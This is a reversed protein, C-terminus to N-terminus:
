RILLHQNRFPKAPEVKPHEMLDFEAILEQRRQNAQADLLGLAALAKDQTTVLGIILYQVVAVGYCIWGPLGPAIAALIAFVPSSKNLHLCLHGKLFPWSKSKIQPRWKQKRNFNHKPPRNHMLAFLEQDPMMQIVGIALMVRFGLLIWGYDNQSVELMSASPVSIESSTSDSPDLPASQTFRSHIVPEVWPFLSTEMNQTALLLILAGRFWQELDKELENDLTGFRLVRKLLWLFLPVAISGVVLRTIPRVIPKLLSVDMLLRFLSWM